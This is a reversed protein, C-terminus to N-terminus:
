WKHQGFSVLVKITEFAGERRADRMDHYQSASHTLLLPSCRGFPQRSDRQVFTADDQRSALVNSLSEVIRAQVRQKQRQRDRPSARNRLVYSPQMAEIVALTLYM